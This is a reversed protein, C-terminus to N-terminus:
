SNYPIIPKAKPLSKEFFINEIEEPFYQEQIYSIDSRIFYFVGEAEIEVFYIM